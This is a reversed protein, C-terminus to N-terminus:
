PTIIMNVEPTPYALLNAEYIILMMIFHLYGFFVFLLTANQIEITHIAKYIKVKITKIITEAVSHPAQISSNSLQPYTYYKLCGLPSTKKTIILITRNLFPLSFIYLFYLLINVMQINDNNAEINDKKKNQKAKKKKVSSAYPKSININM